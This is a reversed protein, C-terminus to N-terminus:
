VAILEHLRPGVVADRCQHVIDAPIVKWRNEISEVTSIRCLRGAENAVRDLAESQGEGAVFLVVGPQHRRLLTLRETLGHTHPWTVFPVPEFSQLRGHLLKLREERA